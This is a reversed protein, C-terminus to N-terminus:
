EYLFLEKDEDLLPCSPSSGEKARKDALENGRLGVHAKIWLLYVTSTERVTALLGKVALALREHANICNNRELIGHAYDSDTFICSFGVGGSSLICRLAMGIAYLEAENNSGHGLHVSASKELLPGPQRYFGAGSPGPNPIASGDTFYLAAEPPPNDLFQSMQETIARKRKKGELSNKFRAVIRDYIDSPEATSGLTRLYDQRVRWVAYNFLLAERAHKLQIRCDTLLLWEIGTAVAGLCRRAAEKVVSCYKYVHHAGDEGNGCFYCVNTFEQGRSNKMNADRMRKEFPVSRFVLRFYYDWVQPPVRPRLVKAWGHVLAESGGVGWRKLKHQVKLGSNSELHENWGKSAFHDYVTRRTLKSDFELHKSSINGDEDRAGYDDLYVLAAHARHEEPRMSLYPRTTGWDVDNVHELGEFSALSVGHAGSLHNKCALLTQNLAWLDRLPRSLRMENGSSSVAHAYAFAGGAFPIILKRLGEKVELYVEPPVIYFQAVYTFLPLLFVNALLTRRHLSIAGFIPRYSLLRQRFKVLAKDYIDRTSVEGFAIGLYVGRDTVGVAGHLYVRLFARLSSHLREDAVVVTKELNLKLGSIASFSHFLNLTFVVGGSTDCAAALDDAFGFPSAKGSKSLKWLLPDYCIIFLFPSLPCGQKVGRTISLSVSTSKPLVPKVRVDSMLGKVVNSLWPPMGVRELMLHIYDHAMSDFAKEIDLLLVYAQAKKDLRSYYYNLLENINDEGRAGPVFGKQSHEVLSVVAETMRGVMVKAIIRNDSNAVSIPRHDLALMTGKKPILFLRAYNFDMGAPPLRGEALALTVEFLLPATIDGFERYVAFPIGDPGSSSNNTDKIAKEFHSLQFHEVSGTAITKDYGFQNVLTPLHGSREQRTWLPSWHKDIINAMADPDSTPDLHASDRIAEMRKRSCPTLKKLSEIPTERKVNLELDGFLERQKNLSAQPALDTLLEHIWRVLCHEDWRKTGDDLWVKDQLAPDLELMKSIKDSDQNEERLLRLLRMARSVRASTTSYKRVRDKNTKFFHKTAKSVCVKWLALREFPDELKGQRRIWRNRLYDAFVEEKAIWRPCNFDREKSQETSFIRMSVPHHDTFLGEELKNRNISIDAAKSAKLYAFPSYLSRDAESLNCYFRDIRSTVSSRCFTHAGQYIEVLGLEQCLRSWTKAAQGSIPTGGDEERETFNFDGGMFVTDGEGHSLSELQTQKQKMASGSKLYLNDLIFDRHHQDRSKMHVQLVNGEVDDNTEIKTPSYYRLLKPGIITALGAHKNDKNSYFTKCRELNLYSDEGANLKTEQLLVVDYEEAFKKIVRM